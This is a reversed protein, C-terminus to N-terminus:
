CVVDPFIPLPNQLIFYGYSKAEEVQPGQLQISPIDLMHYELEPLLFCALFGTARKWLLLPAQECQLVFSSLAKRRPKSKCPELFIGPQCCRGGEDSQIGSM